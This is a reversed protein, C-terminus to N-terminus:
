PLPLCSVGTSSCLQLMLEPLLHLFILGSKEVVVTSGLDFHRHLRDSALSAKPCWM